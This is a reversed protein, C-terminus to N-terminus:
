DEEGAYPAHDPGPQFDWDTAPDIGLLQLAEAYALQRDALPEPTEAWSV